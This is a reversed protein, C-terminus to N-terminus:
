GTLLHITRVTRNYVHMFADVGEPKLRPYRVGDEEGPRMWAEIERSPSPWSSKWFFVV